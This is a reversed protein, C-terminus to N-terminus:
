ESGQNQLLVLSIAPQVGAIVTSIQSMGYIGRPFWVVIVAAESLTVETLATGFTEVEEARVSQLSGYTDM